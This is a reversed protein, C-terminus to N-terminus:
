TTRAFAMERGMVRGLTKTSLTVTNEKAALMEFFARDALNEIDEQTSTSRTSIYEEVVARVGEAATLGHSGLRGTFVTFLDMQQSKEIRSATLVCNKMFPNASLFKELMQETGVFAVAGQQNLSRILRYLDPHLGTDDVYLISCGKYDTIEGSHELASKISYVPCGPTHETLTNLSCGPTEVFIGVAKPKTKIDAKAYTLFREWPTEGGQSKPKKEERKRTETKETKEPEPQSNLGAKEAADEKVATMADEELGAPKPLDMAEEVLETVNLYRYRVDYRQTTAYGCHPCTSTFSQGSEFGSVDIAYERNCEPCTPKLKDIKVPIRCLMTHLHIFEESYPFMANKMYSLFAGAPFEKGSLIALRTDDMGMLAERRKTSAEKMYNNQKEPPLRLLTDSATPILYEQPLDHYCPIDEAEQSMLFSGDTVDFLSIRTPKGCLTNGDGDNRKVFHFCALMPTMNGPNKGSYRIVPLSLSEGAVRNQTYAKIKELIEQISVFESM